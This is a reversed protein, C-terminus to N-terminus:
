AKGRVDDIAARLPEIYDRKYEAVLKLMNMRAYESAEKLLVRYHEEAADLVREISSQDSM